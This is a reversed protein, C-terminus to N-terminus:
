PKKSIRDYRGRQGVTKNFGLDIPRGYGMELPYELVSEPDRKLMLASAIVGIALILAFLRYANQWGFSDIFFQAM